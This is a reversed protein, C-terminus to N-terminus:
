RAAGLAEEQRVVGLVEAQRVAGLAEERRVAEHVVEQRVAGHVEEQLQVEHGAQLVEVGQVEQPQVQLRVGRVEEWLDEAQLARLFGVEELAVQLPGEQSLDGGLSLAVM